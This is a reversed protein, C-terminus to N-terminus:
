REMGGIKYGHSAAEMVADPCLELWSKHNVWERLLSTGEKCGANQRANECEWSWLFGSPAAGGALFCEHIAKKALYHKWSSSIVLFAAVPAIRSCSGHLTTFCCRLNLRTESVSSSRVIIGNGTRVSKDQCENWLSPHLLSATFNHALLFSATLLTKAECFTKNNQPTEGQLLLKQGMHFLFPQSLFYWSHPQPAESLLATVIALLLYSYILDAIAAQVFKGWDPSEILVSRPESINKSYITTIKKLKWNEAMWVKHTGWSGNFVIWKVLLGVCTPFFFVLFTFPDPFPQKFLCNTPFKM